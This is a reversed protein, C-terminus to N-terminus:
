LAIRMRLGFAWLNDEFPNLAPNNSGNPPCRVAADEKGVSTLLFLDFAEFLHSEREEALQNEVVKVAGFIGHGLFVGEFGGLKGHLRLCESIM